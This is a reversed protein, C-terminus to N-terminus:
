EVRLTTAPDVWAARRAPVWTAAAAVSLLVVAIGLGIAWVNLGPGIVLGQSMAFRLAVISLPLGILLAVVSVRVGSGLFMRAVSAPNAGVAIRIGIERTRQQVALSVVGYLGLSALLLAVLGLSGMLSATFIADEYNSADIREYTIVQSIPLSPLRRRILRRLEDVMPEAGARTRVLVRDRSWHKGRATYARFAPRDNAPTSFSTGPMRRTADFVGVVTLSMEEDEMGRLEPPAVTRGVPNEDGWVARAFDSGIVVPISKAGATDSLQVDRGLVIPVNALGLFGPAAGQLELTARVGNPAVIWGADLGRPYPAAGVVDPHDAILRTVTDVVPTFPRIGFSILHRSVEPAYPRYGSVAVVLTSALLVLLPQSLAIQAAVFTRQLRSQSTSGTGSDRIAEAVAGRTAHLAPSLGFVVGTAIALAFAFVFTGADVGIDINGIQSRVAALGIWAISMGAAGAAVAILTSETLLQRLIRRRSAGLSLRVAIEHRRGVAAAVMLSSVNMWFVLLVLAGGIGVLGYILILEAQQGGGPPLANMGLVHANRAMGVRAASDPLTAAVVRQAVAAAQDRSVGAKLRAVVMLVPDETLSRSPLGSVAARASVPIWAAPESDMDRIAGQFQPPAVGVVRLSVDNVLISRGLAGAPDGFLRTAMGHSLVATLAAGAREDPQPAFGVGAALRVGLSGFFGSTVFQANRALAETGDRGGLVVTQSMFGTVDDFVDRQAALAAIEAYTFERHRWGGTHILREGGWIRAQTAGYSVAPPPRFFQAQVVSFIAINATTGLTLVAVIIAVTLKHRAFYRLAFRADNALTEIM